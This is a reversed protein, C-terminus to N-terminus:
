AKTRRPSLTATWSAPASPPLAEDCPGGGNGGLAGSVVFYGGFFVLVLLGIGAGWAWDPLRTQESSRRNSRKGAFYTHSPPQRNIM